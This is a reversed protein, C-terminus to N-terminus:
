AGSSRAFDKLLRRYGAADLTNPPLATLWRALNNGAASALTLDLDRCSAPRPLTSARSAGARSRSARSPRSAFRRRRSRPLPRSQVRRAATDPRVRAAMAAAIATRERDSSRALKGAAQLREFTSAQAPLCRRRAATEARAGVRLQCCDGDKRVRRAYLARLVRRAAGGGLRAAAPKLPLFVFPPRIALSSPHRYGRASKACPFSCRASPCVFRCIM